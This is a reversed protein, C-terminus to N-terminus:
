TLLVPGRRWRRKRRGNGLPLFFRHFFIINARELREDRGQRAGVVQGSRLLPQDEVQGNRMIKGLLEETVDELPSEM